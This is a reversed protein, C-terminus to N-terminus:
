RVLLRCARSNEASSSSSTSASAMAAPMAISFARRWASTRSLVSVSSRSRMARSRCSETIWRSKAIPSESWPVARRTSRGSATSRMASAISLSSSVIRWSRFAIKSMSSVILLSPNCGFTRSRTCSSRGTSPMWGWTAILPTTSWATPPCSASSTSATRRSASVLTPLCALAVWTMMVIAASSSRRITTASSPMPTPADASPARPPRPSLFMRCRASRRPPPMTIPVERSPPVRRVQYTGSGARRRSRRRRQPCSRRPSSSRTPGEGAWAGRDPGLM